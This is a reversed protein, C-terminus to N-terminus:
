IRNYKATFKLSKIFLNYFKDGFFNKIFLFQCKNELVMTSIYLIFIALCIYLVGTHILYNADLLSIITNYDAGEEMSSTTFSSSSSSDNNEPKSESPKENKQDLAKQTISNLTNGAIVARAGIVAGGAMIGVKAAMPLGSNSALSSAGKMGAAVAAGTGLNTLGRAVADPINITSDKITLSNNVDGTSVNLDHKDLGNGSSSEPAMAYATDGLLLLVLCILLVGGLILLITGLLPNSQRFNQIVKPKYYGSFLGYFFIASFAITYLNFDQFIM